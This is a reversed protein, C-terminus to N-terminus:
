EQLTIRVGQLRVAFDGEQIKVYGPGQFIQNAIIDDTGMAVSKSREVYGMNSTEDTVEVKYTGPALDYGILYIGDEVENQINPTLTKIDIPQIEVGQLRVAMDTDLIEVYGDGTLIINAIISDLEMTVDSSREVYGMKMISDTLTVKYLGSAIDKNVLYTGDGYTPVSPKSAAATPANTTVPEKTIAPENTLAPENTPTANGTKDAVSNSTNPEKNANESDDDDGLATAFIGLVIIVLIATIIKHKMFFNRNDKGCHPCRKAGKAVDQGCAKCKILKDM